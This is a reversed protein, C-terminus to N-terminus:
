DGIIEITLYALRRTTLRLNKVQRYNVPRLFDRVLGFIESNQVLYAHSVGVLRFDSMGALKTDSVSVRGDDSDNLIASTVPDISEDGAIVTFEFTPAGLRLPVSEPGKGLQYGAPGNLWERRSVV